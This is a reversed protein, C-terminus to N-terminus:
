AANFLLGQEKLTFGGSMKFGRDCRDEVIGREEESRLGGRRRVGVAGMAEFYIRGGCFEEGRGSM